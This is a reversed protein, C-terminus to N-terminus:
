IKIIEINEFNLKIIDNYAKKISDLNNFTGIYVRYRNKSMKKTKVNKINYQNLLREKLIIATDEFYFDGIKINYRFKKKSKSNKKLKKENKLDISINKIIIGDVPLKNAVKKEEDYTKAKAIVFSNSQNLTKIEVYPENVDLDLEKAIRKSVVSNYFLPYNAKKTVKAVLNKGNTLNTLKVPTDEELYINFILLSRENIKKDIIKKKFLKENYILAFGKNTYNKFNKLNNVQKSQNTCSTSFALIFLFIIRYIM